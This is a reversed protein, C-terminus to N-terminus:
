LTIVQLPRNLIAQHLFYIPTTLTPEPTAIDDRSFESLLDGGMGDDISGFNVNGITGMGSHVLDHPVNLFPSFVLSCQEKM